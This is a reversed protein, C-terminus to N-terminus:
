KGENPSRLLILFTVVHLFTCNVYDLVLASVVSHGSIALAIKVAYLELANIKSKCRELEITDFVFIVYGQLSADNFM